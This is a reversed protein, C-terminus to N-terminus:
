MVCGLEEADYFLKVVEENEEYELSSFIMCTRLPAKYTRSPKEIKFSTIVVDKCLNELVKEM